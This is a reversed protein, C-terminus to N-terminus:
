YYRSETIGNIRNLVQNGGDGTITKILYSELNLCVSKNFSEDFIIRINRLHRRRSRKSISASRAAASLSEGVYVGRPKEKKGKEDRADDLVYVM